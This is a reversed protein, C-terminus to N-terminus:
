TRFLDKLVSIRKCLSLTMMYGESFYKCAKFHLITRVCVSGLVMNEVVGNLFDTRLDGDCEIM